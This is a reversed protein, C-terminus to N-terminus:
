KFIVAWCTRCLDERPPDPDRDRGGITRTEIPVLPKDCETKWGNELVFPGLCHWKQDDLKYITM